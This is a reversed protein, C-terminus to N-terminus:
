RCSNAQAGGQSPQYREASGEFRNLMWHGMDVASVFVVGAHNQGPYVWREVNAGLACLHDALQASTAAPIVEDASGHVILLPVKTSSNFSAPDNETFLRRWAANDFPSTKVLEALSHQNVASAVEALCGQRLTPLLAAGKPTLVANLPAARSGYGVNFGALMMYDYVRNKSPALLAYLAPLDSPPAAAVTGVMQLGSRAGYTPALRWAFLASQGGQSHGWVVYDPALHADPLKRAALVIDITNRAAVDGVLFPLLGPPTGEGQYDTAVVEWGLGLMGNIAATPVASAPNLSPACQAAMGNTGHAWSVVPYGDKPPPSDPVFVLGTVAVSKKNADTSVYMIRRVTGHVEAVPVSESKLLTGPSKHAVGAPVAYFAPLGKPAPVAKSAHSTCGAVVLCVCALAPWVVLRRVRARYLVMGQTRHAVM